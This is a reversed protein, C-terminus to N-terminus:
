VLVRDRVIASHEALDARAMEPTRLYTYEGYASSADKMRYLKVLLTDAGRTYTGEEGGVFGFENLAAAQQEANMSGAPGGNEVVPPTLVPKTTGTWGAFSSPLIGQASAPVGVLCILVAFLIIRARM